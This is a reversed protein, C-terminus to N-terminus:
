TAFIMATQSISKPVHLKLYQQRRDTFFHTSLIMSDSFTKTLLSGDLDLGRQPPSVGVEGGLEPQGPGWGAQGWAGGPHPVWLEPCCHWRRVERRIFWRRRVNFRLMEETLKFGNRWTRNIDPQSLLIQSM